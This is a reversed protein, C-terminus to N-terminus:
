FSSELELISAKTLLHVELTQMDGPDVFDEPQIMYVDESLNRNLFTMKIDMQWIEYDCFAATALVIRISKLMAVPSFIEDYDVGLIQKFVKALLWVKHIHFKWGHTNKELFDVIAVLWVKHIHVNGDMDIKKRLFGSGSWVELM